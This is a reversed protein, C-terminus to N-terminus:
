LYNRHDLTRIDVQIDELGHRKKHTEITEVVEKKMHQLEAKAFTLEVETEVDKRKSPDVGLAKNIVDFEKRLLNMGEKDGRKLVRGIKKEVKEVAELMMKDGDYAETIGYRAKIKPLSKYFTKVDPAAAAEREILMAIKQTKSPVGVKKRVGDMLTKYESVAKADDPDLTIKSKTLESIFLKYKKMMSFFIRKLPDQEEPNTAPVDAYHRVSSFSGSHQPQRLLRSSILAAQWGQQAPKMAIQDQGASASDACHSRSSPSFATAPSSSSRLAHQMYRYGKARGVMAMAM